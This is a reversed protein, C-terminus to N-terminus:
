AALVGVPRLWSLGVAPATRPPRAPATRLLEGPRPLRRLRPLPLWPIRSTAGGAAAPLATPWAWSWQWSWHGRWVWHRATGLADAGITLMWPRPPRDGIRARIRELGDAGPEIHGHAEALGRRLTEELGDEPATM